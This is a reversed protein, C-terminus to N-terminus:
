ASAGASSSERARFGLALLVRRPDIGSRAGRTLLEVLEDARAALADAVLAQSPRDALELELDCGVLELVTRVQPGGPVVVLRGGDRRVRRGATLMLEAGILDVFETARLDLVVLPAERAAARLETDLAPATAIDLEGSVTVLVAADTLARWCAFPRALPATPGNPSRLQTSSM